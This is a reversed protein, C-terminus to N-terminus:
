ILMKDLGSPSLDYKYLNDYPYNMLKVLVCISKVINNNNYSFTNFVNAYIILLM